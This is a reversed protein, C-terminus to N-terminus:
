KFTRKKLLSHTRKGSQVPVKVVCAGRVCYPTSSWISTVLYGSYHLFATLIKTEDVRTADLSPTVAWYDIAPFIISFARAAMVWRAFDLISRDTSSM